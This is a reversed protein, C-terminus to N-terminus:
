GRARAARRTSGLRCTRQTGGARLPGWATVCDNSRSKFAPQQRAAFCRLSAAWANAQPQRRTSNLGRLPRCLCNEKRAICRGPAGPVGSAVHLGTQNCFASQSQQSSTEQRTHILNGGGLRRTGRHEVEEALLGAAFAFGQKSLGAGPSSPGGAGAVSSRRVRSQFLCVTRRKLLLSESSPTFANRTRLGSFM